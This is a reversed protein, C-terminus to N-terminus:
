DKEPRGLLTEPKTKQHLSTGVLAFPIVATAGLNEFVKVRNWNPPCIRGAVAFSAGFIERHICGQSPSAVENNDGRDKCPKIVKFASVRFDRIFSYENLVLFM